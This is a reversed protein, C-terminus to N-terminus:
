RARSLEEYKEVDIEINTLHEGVDNLLFCRIDQNIPWTVIRDALRPKREGEVGMLIQADFRNNLFREFRRWGPIKNPIRMDYFHYARAKLYDTLSVREINVWYRKEGTRINQSYSRKAIDLMM